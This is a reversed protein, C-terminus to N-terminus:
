SKNILIVDSVMIRKGKPISLRVSFTCHQCQRTIQKAEAKPSIELTYLNEKNCSGCIKSITDNM